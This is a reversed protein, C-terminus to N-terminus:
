SHVLLGDRIGIVRSAAKADEENHTVMVITLSENENLEKFLEIVESRTQTDLSGTPEDALIIPPQNVIARAIAVREQEGNSLQNPLRDYKGSLYVKDLATLAMERHDKSHFETVTLPLMVNEAATLYPILQYEQFVFGLYERRFDALKELPLGYIDIEDIVVTGSTPHALGGICTLITSKGSGSPGMIAAFEGEDISFSIGAVATQGMEGGYIKKLDNVEIMKM